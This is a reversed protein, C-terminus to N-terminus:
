RCENGPCRLPVPRSVRSEHRNLTRTWAQEGDPDVRLLLEPLWSPAYTEGPGIAGHLTVTGRYVERPGLPPITFRYETDRLHFLMNHTSEPQIEVARTSAASSSNRVEFSVSIEGSRTYPGGPDVSLWQLGPFEATYRPSTLRNDSRDQEGTVGDPDITAMIHGAHESPHVGVRRTIMTTHGSAIEPLPIRALRDLCSTTSLSGSRCLHLESVPSAEAGNNQVLVQVTASDGAPLRESPLRVETVRLNWGAVCALDVGCVATEETSRHGEAPAHTAAADSPRVVEGSLEVSRRHESNPGRDAASLTVEEMITACGAALALLAIPAIRVLRSM